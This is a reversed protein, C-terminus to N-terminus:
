KKGTPYEVLYVNYGKNPGSARWRLANTTTKTTYHVPMYGMDACRIYTNSWDSDWASFSSQTADTGDVWKLTESACFYQLGIWYNSGSFHRLIFQHTEIDKVTALHGQAGKFFQKEALAKAGFWRTQQGPIKQMRFLEFYSKSAPNYYPGATVTGDLSPKKRKTDAHSLSTQSLCFLMALGFLMNKQLRNM